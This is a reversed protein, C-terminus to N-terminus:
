QCPQDHEHGADIAEPKSAAREADIRKRVFGLKNTMKPDPWIFMNSVHLPRQIHGDLSLGEM